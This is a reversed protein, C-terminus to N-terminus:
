GCEVRFSEFAQAARTLFATMASTTFSDRRRLFVTDAIAEGAPLTLTSLGAASATREVLARPLMTIGLGAGVCAFIAELTGFELIRPMPVGLRALLAELRQRYSCGARLVVIRVDGRGVVAPVSQIEAPAILALEERFMTRAELLTDVVPGCVFAGDVSGERVAEILECTTGTRLTLEVDPFAKAYEALLPGLRLAATTELSGVILRGRPVGDDRVARAADRLMRPISQAYPLLRRGEDTLTVGSSHREFLRCGLSEELARIRATVNSQVTNLEAAARGMVGLRAVAEFIRLDAADM